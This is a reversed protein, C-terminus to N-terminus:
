MPDDLMQMHSQLSGQCFLTFFSILRECATMRRAKTGAVCPEFGMVQLLRQQRKKAFEEAALKAQEDYNLAYRGKKTGEDKM